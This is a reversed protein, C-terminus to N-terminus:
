IFMQDEYDVQKPKETAKLNDVSFATLVVAAVACTIGAWIITNM